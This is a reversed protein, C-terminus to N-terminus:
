LIKGLRGGARGYDANRQLNGGALDPGAGATNASPMSVETKNAGQNQTRGFWLPAPTGSRKWFKGRFLWCFLLIGVIFGGVV